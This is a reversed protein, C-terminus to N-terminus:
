PATAADMALLMIMHELRKDKSVLYMVSSGQPGVWFRAGVQEVADRFYKGNMVFDVPPGIVAAPLVEEAESVAGDGGGVRLTLTDKTVSAQLRYMPPGAFDLLRALVILLPAGEPLQVSTGQKGQVQTRVGKLINACGKAPFAGQLLSGSVAGSEFFLWQIRDGELCTETAERRRGGVRALLHDPILFGGKLPSPVRAKADPALVSIRFTDTAMLLGSEAWFVGRLTPKTEDQGVSFMLRDLETWWERTLAVRGTAPPERQIYASLDENAAPEYRSLAARFGPSRLTVGHETLTLTCAEHGQDNLSGVLKTLLAAPVSFDGPFTWPTCWMAGAEGASARITDKAFWLHKLGPIIDRDTTFGKLLNLIPLLEKVPVQLANEKSAVKKPSM